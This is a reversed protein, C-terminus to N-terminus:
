GKRKSYKRDSAKAQLAEDVGGREDVRAGQVAEQCSGEDALHHLHANQFSPHHLTCAPDILLKRAAGKMLSTNRTLM